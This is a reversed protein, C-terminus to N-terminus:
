FAATPSWLAPGAGPTGANLADHACGIMCFLCGGLVDSWPGSKAVVSAFGVFVCSPPPTCHVVVYNAGVM